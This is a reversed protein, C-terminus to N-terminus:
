TPASWCPLRASMKITSPSGDWSMSASAFTTSTKWSPARISRPYPNLVDWITVARLAVIAYPLPPRPALATRLALAMGLSSLAVVILM